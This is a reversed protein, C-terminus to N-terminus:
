SKFCSFPHNVANPMFIDMHRLYPVHNCATVGCVINNIQAEGQWNSIWFFFFFFFSNDGFLEIQQSVFFGLM